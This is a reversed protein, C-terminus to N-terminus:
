REAFKSVLQVQSNDAFSHIQRLARTKLPRPQCYEKAPGGTDGDGFIM